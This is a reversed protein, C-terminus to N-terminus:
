EENQGKSLGRSRILCEDGHHACGQVLLDQDM